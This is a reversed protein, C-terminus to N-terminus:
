WVWRVKKKPAMFPLALLKKKCKKKGGRGEESCEAGPDEALIFRQLALVVVVVRAFNFSSTLPDLKATHKHTHTDTAEPAARHEAAVNMEATFWGLQLQQHLSSVYKSGINRKKKKKKKPGRLCCLTLCVTQNLDVSDMSHEHSDSLAFYVNSIPFLSSLFLTVKLVLFLSSLKSKQNKKKLHFWSQLNHTLAHAGKWGAAGCRSCQEELCM